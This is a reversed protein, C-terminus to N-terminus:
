CQAVTNFPLLAFQTILPRHVAITM